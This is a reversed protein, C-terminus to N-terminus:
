REPISKHEETVRPINSIKVRLSTRFQHNFDSVNNTILENKLPDMRDVNKKQSVKKCTSSSRSFPFSNESFRHIGDGAGAKFVFISKLTFIDYTFIQPYVIM